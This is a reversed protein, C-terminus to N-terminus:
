IEKNESYFEGFAKRAATAYANIAQQKSKFEGLHHRVYNIKIGASWKGSAALLCIGKAGSTNNRNKGRNAGNEQNTALRLNDIRNNSPNRDRHDIQSAPWQGYNIFWVVQHVKYRYGDVNVRLYGKAELCSVIDGAARCGMTVKRTLLGTNADYSFLEHLRNYSPRPKM